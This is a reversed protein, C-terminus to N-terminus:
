SKSIMFQVMGLLGLLITAASLFFTGIRRRLQKKEFPEHRSGRYPHTNRMFLAGIAYLIVIAAVIFYKHPM